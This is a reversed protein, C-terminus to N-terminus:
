RKLPATFRQLDFINFTLYLEKIYRGKTGDYNDRALLGLSWCAGRYDLSAQRVIDKGIRNDKTLFFILFLQVTPPVLAEFKNPRRNKSKAFKKCNSLRLDLQYKQLGLNLSNSTRLPFGGEVDYLSDTTLSVGEFPKLSVVARIPLLKRDATIGEYTYKGLYNYASSVYLNLFERDKYSM